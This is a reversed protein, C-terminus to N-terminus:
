YMLYLCSYDSNENCQKASQEYNKGSYAKNYISFNRWKPKYTQKYFVLTSSSIEVLGNKVAQCIIESVPTIHKQENSTTKVM